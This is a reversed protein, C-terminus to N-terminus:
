EDAGASISGPRSGKGKGPGSKKAAGASLAKQILTHRGEQAAKQLSADEEIDFYRRGDIWTQECITYTSLPPGSWIVFDADKGPELSGVRHELRMQKAPNLTVFKLAEEPSVGGYKVAKAAETNLRRALEGSDSNFSTVVGQANMLAGNYPIADVVEFKYAWWDSFTSGMAGHKAMADAVKYGELIHTFTGVKFGTSEAVRILALIEDQRYSHCHIMRKDELIEVLADLQLNRRPPIAYKKKSGKKNYQEWEWKYDTAARFWDTFFQEVGMRTNPYRSPSRKVNEGLAFKISPFAGEFQMGDADAGWRFKIIGSQGGISNASGHLIQAATVGGALQRYIDIADSNIVDGIRVESTISHAMENLGGTGATHSHADFIGPTVHKGHADVIVAGSPPTLNTGVKEIKGSKVLLQANELIGDPGNTWITANKIFAYKPQIPIAPRGFAGEPYNVAVIERKQFTKKKKDAKTIAGDYVARWTFTSGDGWAGDGFMTKGDVFGAFRAIGKKGTASESLSFNLRRGTLASRQAKITKSEKKISVAPKLESGKIALAMSVTEAGTSLTMKWNGRVDAVASKTIEFRKGGVWTTLVKTKGAFIDGSTIVLNAVKGAEVSGLMKSKGLWRAPTTTLAALAQDKTLGREVAIRVNKLFDGTKKLTSTTLSFDVQAGALRAPNEPALDWHRLTRLTVDAEEELTTVKPAEPFNVPIILPLGAAKIAALRRYEQGGGRVWMALNFERAIKAARLVNQEDSAEMIINKGKSGLFPQLAALSLNNEPANQMSPNSGYATQAKAYWEADLFVQRILAIIGMLSTPYVPNTYSFSAGPGRSLAMGLVAEDQLIIDNKEGDKLLILAGSGRIIGKPSFTLVTTFGNGRLAKAAAENYTFLDAARREPRVYRNWHVASPAAKNKSASSASGSSQAGRARTEKPFGYNTYLDIFGPYITKGALDRSVADAPIEVNLGVAAIYSDRIIVTAKELVKGPAVVVRANKLAIVNPTNEHIGIVQRTQAGAIGASFLFAGTLAICHSKKVRSLGETASLFWRFRCTAYLSELKVQIYRAPITCLKARCTSFFM